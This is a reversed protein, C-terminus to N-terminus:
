LGIHLIALKEVPWQPSYLFVFLQQHPIALIENLQQEQAWASILHFIFTCKSSWYTSYKPWFYFDTTNLYYIFITQQTQIILISNHFTKLFTYLNIM